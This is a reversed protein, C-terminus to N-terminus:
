KGGGKKGSWLSDRRGGKKSGKWGKPGSADGEGGGQKGHKQTRELHFTNLEGKRPLGMAVPYNM